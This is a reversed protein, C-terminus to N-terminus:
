KVSARELFVDIKKSEEEWNYRSAVKKAGEQFKAYMDPQTIRDIALIIDQTTYKPSIIIGSQNENVVKAMQPLDTVIVPTGCMAHEFLKNPLAYRLSQTTDDILVLGVDVSASWSLLEDYPVWGTCHTRKSVGISEAKKQIKEQEPGGGIVCFHVDDLEKIAELIKEFGRGPLLIGQYAVITHDAPISFEERLRNNPDPESYRPVNLLVEPESIQYLQKLYSSDLWGSTYVLDAERIFLSEMHLFFSAKVPHDKTEGLDSYIERADYLLRGGHIWRFFWGLCLMFVDM